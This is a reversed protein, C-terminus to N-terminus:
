EFCYAIFVYSAISVGYLWIDSCFSKNSETAMPSFPNWYYHSWLILCSSFVTATSLFMDRCVVCFWSQNNLCHASHKVLFLRYIKLLCYSLRFCIISSRFSFGLMNEDSFIWFLTMVRLFNCAIIKGMHDFKQFIHLIITLNWTPVGSHISFTKM